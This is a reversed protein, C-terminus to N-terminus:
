LRAARHLASLFHAFSTARFAALDSQHEPALTPLRGRLRRTAETLYYFLSAPDADAADFQYWIASINRTELYSAVLMTKGAGPPGSIWTAPHDRSQDLVKFLRDRVVVGDLRPRTLKALIPRVMSSEASARLYTHHGDNCVGSFVV